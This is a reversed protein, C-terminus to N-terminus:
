GSTSPKKTPIAQTPPTPRDPESQAAPRATGPPSAAPTLTFYTVVAGSILGAVIGIVLTSIVFWIIAPLDTKRRRFRALANYDNIPGSTSGLKQWYFIIANRLPTTTTQTGQVYRTWVPSELTRCKKMESHSLTLDDTIDRIVFYNIELIRLGGGMREIVHRPLNRAENFRFDVVEIEDFGSLFRRDPPDYRTFFAAEAESSLNIRLRVYREIQDSDVAFVKSDFTIVTGQYPNSNTVKEFKLESAPQLRWCSLEVSGLQISFSSQNHPTGKVQADENFVAIAMDADALMVGLDTISDSEVSFPVFLHVSDVSTAKSLRFGLDLANITVGNLRHDLRWLNVHL